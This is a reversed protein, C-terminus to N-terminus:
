QSIAAALRSLKERVSGDSVRDGARLVAGGILANDTGWTLKVDRHPKHKLATSIRAQEGADVKIAARLEAAVVGEAQERLTVFEMEIEPLLPLRRNEALLKVFNRAQIDPKHAARNCLELLLEARVTAPVQPDGLMVRVDPNSTFSALLKLLQGWQQTQKHESAFEFLAKAYPRALTLSEAM